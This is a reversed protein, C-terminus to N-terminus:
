KLHCWSKRRQIRGIVGCSVDLMEALTRRPLDVSRILRVQEDNLKARGNKEGTNRAIRNRRKSTMDAMNWQHDAEVLHAPNVCRTNDCTHCVFGAPMYGHHLQFILRHALQMRGNAKIRGYGDRICYGQWEWCEDPGGRKYFRQLREALM